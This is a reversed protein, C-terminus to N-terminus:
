CKMDYNWKAEFQIVISIVPRADSACNDEQYVERECSGKTSIKGPPTRILSSEEIALM